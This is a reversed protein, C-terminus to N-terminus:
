GLDALPIYPEGWAHPSPGLVSLFHNIGDLNEGRTHPHDSIRAKAFVAQATRGVRTPITRRCVFLCILGPPEGWAHPSPGPKKASGRFPLVNEGRTHPHDPPAAYWESATPTRGVRTPITRYDLVYESDHVPEGWAHPSPGFLNEAVCRDSLNEGRTHPHDTLTNKSYPDATTRGVRTPITRIYLNSKESLVQEGWAHPSPGGISCCKPHPDENEGRTHPHDSDKAKTHSHTATRGVRTPITRTQHQSRFM